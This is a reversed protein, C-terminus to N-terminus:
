QRNQNRELFVQGEGQCDVQQSQTTAELIKAITLGPQEMTLPDNMVLDLSNCRKSLTAAKAESATEAGDM